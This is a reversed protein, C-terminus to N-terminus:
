RPDRRFVEMIRGRWFPDLRHEVVKGADGYSHILSQERVGMYDGVIALHHPERNFRMLLVDGPSPERDVPMGFARIVADRLGDKHPERGYIRVDPLTVGLDHYALWVLGACDLGSPSLGRHKFPTGLYKRASKVLPSIM